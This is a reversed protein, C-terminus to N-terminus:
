ASRNVHIRNAEEAVIGKHHANEGGLDNLKTANVLAGSKIWRVNIMLPGGNADDGEIV